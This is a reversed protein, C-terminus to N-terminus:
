AWTWGGGQNAPALSAPPPHHLKRVVPWCPRPSEPRLTPLPTPATARSGSGAASPSSCKAGPANIRRVSLDRVCFGEHIGAQHWTPRDFHAPTKWWNKFARDLDFLAQPSVVASGEKLWTEQRSQAWLRTQEYVSISPMQRRWFGRQDLGLNCAYRADACYSRPGVRIGWEPVAARPHVGKLHEGKLHEGKL